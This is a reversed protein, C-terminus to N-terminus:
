EEYPAFRLTAGVKSLERALLAEYSPEGLYLVELRPIRRGEYFTLADFIVQLTKEVSPGTVLIRVEETEAPAMKSALERSIQRPGAVRAMALFAEDSLRGESPVYLYDFPGGFAATAADVRPKLDPPPRNSACGALTISAALALAAWRRASGRTSSRSM